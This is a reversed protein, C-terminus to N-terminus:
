QTAVRWREHLGSQDSAALASARRRLAQAQFPTFRLARLGVRRLERVLWQGRMIGTNSHSGVPLLLHGIEHAIVFSLIENDDGVNSSPFRSYFVYAIRGPENLTTPTAGLASPPPGLRTVMDPNLIIITLSPRWPTMAPPARPSLHRTERWAIEVGADRYARAVDLKARILQGVPVEAYDDLGISITPVDTPPPAALSTTSMVSVILAALFLFGSNRRGTM